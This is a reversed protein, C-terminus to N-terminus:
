WRLICDSAREENFPAGTYTVARVGELEWSLTRPLLRAWRRIANPEKPYNPDRESRQYRDPMGNMYTLVVEGSDDSQDYSLCQM